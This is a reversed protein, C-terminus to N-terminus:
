TEPLRVEIHVIGDDWDDYRVRYRGAPTMGIIIGKYFNDEGEWAAIVQLM